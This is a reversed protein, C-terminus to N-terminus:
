RLLAKRGANRGSRHGIVARNRHSESRNPYLNRNRHGTPGGYAAVAMGADSRRRMRTAACCLTGQSSCRESRSQLSEHAVTSRPKRLPTGLAPRSGTSAAPLPAPRSLTRTRRRPEMNRAAPSRSHTRSTLCLGAICAMRRRTTFGGPRV